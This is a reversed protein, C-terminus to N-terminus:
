TLFHISIGHWSIDGEARRSSEEIVQIVPDHGKGRALDKPSRGKYDLSQAAVNGSEDELLVKTLGIQGYRAALHLPVDGYRNRELAAKRGQATGLMMTVMDVSGEAAALHLPTSKKIFDKERLSNRGRVTRLIM